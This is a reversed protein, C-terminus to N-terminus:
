AQLRLVEDLRSQLDASKTTLTVTNPGTVDAKVIQDFQSLQPSAFKPDTIRQASYAVDEATVPYFGDVPPGDVSVASGAPLWGVSAAEPNPAGLVPADSLLTGPAALAPGLLSVGALAALVVVVLLCVVVHKRM